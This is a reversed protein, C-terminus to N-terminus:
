FLKRVTANCVVLVIVVIERRRVVEVLVSKGILWIARM